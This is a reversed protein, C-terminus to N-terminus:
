KGAVSLIYAVLDAIKNAGLTQLFDPPMVGSPFGPVIYANPAEISQQVYAPLPKGAKQADAAVNDLKPGVTGTTGAAKLTHCAGCGGAGLFVTKGAAANGTPPKGNGTPAPTPSPTPTPTPTPAPAASPTATGGATDKDVAAAVYAAVDRADNGTVLNKPMGPAGTSTNTIAYAIQGRVVQRITGETMGVKLDQAFATDLDPGITGTTGADALTHCSGCGPKGNKGNVFLKKGNQRDANGSTYGLAGCGAGVLALTAAAAAFLARRRPSRAPRPSEVAPSDIRRERRVVRGVM